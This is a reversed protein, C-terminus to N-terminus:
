SCFLSILLPVSFELAIGHFIAISILQKDNGNQMFMPLCVDMSNIGAVSIAAYGMGRKALFQCSLLAVMERIVNALLAIASIAAANTSISAAKFQAILVSSLSYYGFGSGIALTDSVSQSRIVAAGLLTFVLTGTITFAPLTLMRPNIDKFMSKLDDRMGIGLGVQIILLYLFYHTLNGNSIGNPVSVTFAILIGMIMILPYLFHKM